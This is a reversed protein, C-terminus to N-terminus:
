SLKLGPYQMDLSKLRDRLLKAVLYEKYWNQDAPIIQWPQGSCHRFVDEYYRQYTDHLGIDKIDDASYKWMKRPDETRERLRELQREQSVHLYIKLIETANDEVLLREFDNIARMRQMSTANDALGKVRTVLVDEYYSRNFVQIRGKAPTHRHVRWLFDHALEEETPVKFSEVRLGQPNMHSFVNRSLGDKGSADMGQVVILVAHKAEAYLMNQLEDLEDVIAATEAKTRQKDMGEPARTSIEALSINM